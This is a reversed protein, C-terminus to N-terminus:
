QLEQVVFAGNDNAYVFRGAAGIAQVGGSPQPTSYSQFIPLAWTADYFGLGGTASSGAVLSDFSALVASAGGLTGLTGLDTVAAPVATPDWTFVRLGASTALHIRYCSAALAGCTGLRAAIASVGSLGAQRFLSVPATPGASPFAASPALDLIQFGDVEAVFAYRRHVQVDRPEALLAFSVPAPAAAFPGTYSCTTGTFASVDYIDLASAGAGKAAYLYGGQVALGFYRPAPNPNVTNVLRQAVGCPVCTEGPCTGSYTGLRFAMLGAGSNAQTGFASFLLDGSLALGGAFGFGVM